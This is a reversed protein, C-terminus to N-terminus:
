PEEKEIQLIANGIIEPIQPVVANGLSKLRDVRDKCLGVEKTREIKRIREFLSQQLDQAEKFSKAYFAEWLDCLGQNKEIWAGMFWRGQTNRCPMDPLCDRLKRAYLGPSAKAIEKHQWMKRLIKWRLKSIEADTKTNNSEENELGRFLDLEYPIGDAMRGVDPEFAWLKGIRKCSGIFKGQIDRIWSLSKKSRSQSGTPEYAAEKREQFPNTTSTGNITVSKVFGCLMWLNTITATTHKYEQEATRLYQHHGASKAILKAYSLVKEYLTNLYTKPIILPNKEAETFIITKEKVSELVFFLEGVSCFKICQSDPSEMSDQSKSLQCDGCTCNQHMKTNIKELRQCLYNIDIVSLATLRNVDNYIPVDPWHKNLIKQCFPDIECFGVTQFGGTRELGLSFGGIGSFLDLHKLKKM